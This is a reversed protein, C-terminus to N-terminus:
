TKPNGKLQFDVIFILIIMNISNGAKVPKKITIPKYGKITVVAKNVNNLETKRKFPGGIEIDSNVYLVIEIKGNVTKPSELELNSDLKANVPAILSIIAVLFLLLVVMKKVNM